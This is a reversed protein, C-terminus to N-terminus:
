AESAPAPNNTLENSEIDKEQQRLLTQCQVHLSLALAAPAILTSVFTLQPSLFGITLIAKEGWSLNDWRSFLLIAFGLAVVTMDYNFAYPLILFTATAAPFALQVPPLRHIRWLQWLAFIASAIQAAIGLWGGGVAPLVTPMM